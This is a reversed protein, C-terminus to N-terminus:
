RAGRRLLCLRIHGACHRDRNRQCLDGIQGRVFGARHQRASHSYRYWVSFLLYTFADPSIRAHGKAGPRRSTNLIRWDREDCDSCSRRGSRRASSPLSAASWPELCFAASITLIAGGFRFRRLSSTSFFHHRAGRDPPRFHLGRDRGTDSSPRSRYKAIGVWRLPPLRSSPWLPLHSSSVDGIDHRPSVPHRNPSVTLPCHCQPSPPKLCRAFAPRTAPYGRCRYM